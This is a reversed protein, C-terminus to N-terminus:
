KRRSKELDILQQIKREAAKKEAPWRRACRKIHYISSWKLRSLSPWDNKKPGRKQGSFWKGEIIEWDLTNRRSNTTKCSQATRMEELGNGDWKKERRKIIHEMWFNAQWLRGPGAQLWLFDTGHRTVQLSTSKIRSENCALVHQGTPDRKSM